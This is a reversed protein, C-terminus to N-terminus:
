FEFLKAFLYMLTVTFLSKVTKFCKFCMSATKLCFERTFSIGLYVNVIFAM